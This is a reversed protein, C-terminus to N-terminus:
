DNPHQLGIDTRGTQPDINHSINGPMGEEPYILDIAQIMTLLQHPTWEFNDNLKLKGLIRMRLHCLGDCFAFLHSTEEREEKCARCTSSGYLDPNLLYNHYRHFSHGSIWRFLQACSQREYNLLKKSLIKNPTPIFIKTQRAEGNNTWRTTWEKMIYNDIQKQVWSRPVPIIPEVSYNIKTTGEKAKSDAKENGEHGVHAKIWNLKTPIIQHLKNLEHICDSTLKSSTAISDIAYIAAKSDTIIDIQRIGQTKFLSANRRAYNAAHGIAYMEAQFITAMQGLYISEEHILKYGKDNDEPGYIAYGCGTKGTAPGTKIHSGDTFIQIKDKQTENYVNYEELNHDFPKTGLFKSPIIDTTINCIGADNLLNEAWAIHSIIQDKTWQKIPATKQTRVYAALFERRIYLDLPTTHTFIELGSTPSHTRIPGINCIALRQLRKAQNQFEKTRTKSAWAISGYTFTPRVINTYLWRTMKPSPGWFKGMANKTAFLLKKAKHFKNKIHQKFTLKNDFIVGLYKVQTQFELPQNYLRIKTLASTDIKKRSFIVVATKDPSFKMGTQDLAATISDLITQLKHLITQLCRGKEGKMADDAFAIGLLEANEIILLLINIV